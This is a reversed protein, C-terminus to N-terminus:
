WRRPAAPPPAAVPAECGAPEVVDCRGSLGYSM